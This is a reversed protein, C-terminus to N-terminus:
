SYEFKGHMGPINPVDEKTLVRREGTKEVRYVLSARIADSYAKKAAEVSDFSRM